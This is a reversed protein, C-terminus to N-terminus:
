AISALGTVVPIFYPAVSQTASRVFNDIDFTNDGEALRKEGERHLALAFIGIGTKFINENLIRRADDRVKIRMEVLAKHDVNVYVSAGGESKSVYGASLENFNHSLWQDQKVPIIEPMRTEPQEDPKTDRKTGKGNKKTEEAEVVRLCVAFRLPENRSADTFGFEVDLEQGPIAMEPPHITFSAHGNHLSASYEVRSPDSCWWTGPAKARSLYDNTADTSCEIRRHSNVPIDKVLKNGEPRLNLPELFTPFKKGIFQSEDGPKIAETKIEDGFGFLNKIAPDTKAM